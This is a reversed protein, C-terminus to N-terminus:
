PVDMTWTALAGTELRTFVTLRDGYIFLNKPEGEIMFAELNDYSSSLVRLTTTEPVDFPSSLTKELLYIRDGAIGLDHYAYGISDIYTMDDANFRHGSGVFISQGDHGLRLPHSYTYDGHYPTEVDESLQAPTSTYDNRILDNPSTGDRLTFVAKREPVYIGDRSDYRWDDNFVREGSDLAFLSRTDWAGSGDITFLHADLRIMLTVTSPAVAFLSAAKSAVDVIEIRGGALGVFVRTGDPDVAMSTPSSSLPLPGLFTKTSLDYRHLAPTTADLFFVVGNNTVKAHVYDFTQTTEITQTPAVDPLCENGLRHTGQGCSLDGDVLCEDGVRKTGEGCAVSGSPICENGGSLQTGAGCTVSSPQGVSVCQGSIAM